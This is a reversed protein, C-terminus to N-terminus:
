QHLRRISVPDGDKVGHDRFRTGSVIELYRTRTRDHRVVFASFAGEPFGEFTLVVRWWRLPGRDAALDTVFDCDGLSAKAEELDGVHVNLTGRM